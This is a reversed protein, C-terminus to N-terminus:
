DEIKLTKRYQTPTIDYVQKFARTFNANDDFGCKMAIEGVPTDPHDALLQRAYSMRVKQIYNIPSEGVTALMKRRLQSTSMFLHQALNEVSLDNKVMLQQITDNLKHIFELDHGGNGNSKETGNTTQQAYKERLTRRQEMLRHVNLRLEDSNFPKSLYADAGADLGKMRDHDSGKATIVVIPVHNVVESSRIDRCLQLGDKEPMILDTVIIDPVLEIAKELGERGDSAYTVAFEQSFLSGIYRAVDGSDEIVLMRQQGEGESDAPLTSLVEVPQEVLPTGGQQEVYTGEPAKMPLLIRFVTGKGLQSHVTIRGKLAGVIQKTLALGIGSSNKGETKQWFPDFIHQLSDHEIGHGNDSVTLQLQEGIQQLTLYLRGGAPTNKLANSILNYLIKQWYGPVYDAEIVAQEPAFALQIHQQRATEQWAEVAMATFACVNGRKWAPTGIASQVKSIDLLQNVMELLGNGQRVIMEGAENVAMTPEKDTASALQEGLGLIVTLPTRFEHTVNTFFSERVHQLDRLYRNSRSKQRFAYLMAAIALLLLAIIAIAWFTLRKNATQAEANQQQLQSNNFKANYSALLTKFEQNNLSDRLHTYRDMYIRSRDPDTKYYAAYLGHLSRCQNYRDGLQEFLQNAQAFYKVAEDPHEQMRMVEGMQNLCVGLTNYDGCQQLVPIALALQDRAKGFEGISIYAAAMQSRRVAAHAEDHNETDILLARRAYDLAEQPKLQAQYIESTIGYVNALLATNNMNQQALEIARLAFKEAEEPQHAAKYIGAITNLSSVMRETDHHQEDSEYMRRAYDLAEIYRSLRLHSLALLNCSESYWTFDDNGAALPLAKAAYTICQEYQQQFYLYEASYYWVNLSLSDAPTGAAPAEEPGFQERALLQFIDNATKQRDGDDQEDYQALLTTLSPTAEGQAALTAAVSWLLCCLTLIKKM